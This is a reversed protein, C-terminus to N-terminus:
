CASLANITFRFRYNSAFKEVASVAQLIFHQNVQLSNVLNQLM